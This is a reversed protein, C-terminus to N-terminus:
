FLRFESPRAMRSMSSPLSGYGSVAQCPLEPADAGVQFVGHRAFRSGRREVAIGFLATGSRSAAGTRPRARGCRRAPPSRGPSRLARASGGRAAPAGPPASCRRPAGAPASCRFRAAPRRAANAADVRADLAVDIQKQRGHQHQNQEGAEVQHVVVAAHELLHRRERLPAAFQGLLQDRHLLVGEAGDRALQM